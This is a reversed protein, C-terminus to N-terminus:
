CGYWRSLHCKVDLCKGLLTLQSGNSIYVNYGLLFGRRNVLPIEGWTLVINSDQQHASLLVPSSPVTSSVLYPTFYVSSFHPLCLPSFSFLFNTILICHSKEKAEELLILKKGHVAIRVWSRCTDRGASCCSQPSQPAATCPFITDWVRCSTPQHCLFLNNHIICHLKLHSDM